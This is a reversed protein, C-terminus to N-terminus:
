MWSSLSSRSSFSLLQDLEWKKNKKKSAYKDFNEKIFKEARDRFDQVTLRRTDDEDSKKEEDDVFNM